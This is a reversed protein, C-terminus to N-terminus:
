INHSSIVLSQEEIIKYLLPICAGALVNSAGIGIISISKLFGKLSNEEELNQTEEFCIQQCKYLGEGIKYLGYLAIIGALISLTPRLKNLPGVQKELQTLTQMKQQHKLKTNETALQGSDTTYCGILYGIVLIEM